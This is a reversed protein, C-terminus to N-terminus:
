PKVKDLMSRFDAFRQVTPFQEFTKGAHQDDVDCLGVLTESQVGHVNEAGRGGVGICAIALKGNPADAAREASCASTTFWYGAGSAAVTRLFDRRNTSSNM